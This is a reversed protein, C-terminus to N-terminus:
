SEKSWSWPVVVLKEFVLRVFSTIIDYKSQDTIVFMRLDKELGLTHTGCEGALKNHRM